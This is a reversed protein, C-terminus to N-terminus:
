GDQSTDKYSSSIQTCPPVDPIYTELLFAMQPCLSFIVMQFAFFFVEPLVLLAQVELRWFLLLM